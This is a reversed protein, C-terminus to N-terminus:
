PRANLQVAFGIIKLRGKGSTAKIRFKVGKYQYNFPRNYQKSLPLSYYNDDGGGTVPDLDITMSTLLKDEENYASIQLQGEGAAQIIFERSQKTDTLSGHWLIPTMIDIPPSFDEDDEYEVVKFAGGSTGFVTTGGLSAGCRQNLFNATSWKPESGPTPNLTMTLRTTLTDTQPFFIHYQGYDQDYFASIDEKNDVTAVLNKYIEEIKSSLPVSYITIGNSESRRLSHVGHRSCYLIDTGVNAITNHSITGVGVATKDDIVWKTYDPSINYVIVKDNTFVALKNTEFVGLGRIEDATGIINRVDIDAAKTVSTDSPDTDRTFTLPDDVKSFDIISRRGSEGAIALRRQIAVAYAPKERPNTSQTFTLGNFRHPLQDRCFFFIENNFVASTVISNLPFAELSQTGNPESGLTIGHGDKQAWALLDRGYFQLHQITRDQPVATRIVVGRDRMIIGRFNAYANEMRFMHQMKGTDLSAQDRSSDIGQFDDYSFPENDQGPKSTIM